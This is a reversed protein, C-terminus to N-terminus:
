KFDNYAAEIVNLTKAVEGNDCFDPNSVAFGGDAPAASAKFRLNAYLGDATKNASIDAVNGVLKVTSGSAAVEMEEFIGADYGVYECGSPISVELYGAAVNEDTYLRVPVNVISSYGDEVRACRTIGDVETGDKTIWYPTIYFADGFRGSGINTIKLTFFYQSDVNFVSPDVNKYELGDTTSVIKKFVTETGYKYSWDDGMSVKFGVKSYNAGDVTSVIRLDSKGASADKVTSTIQCAASLVQAPVFKAYAKGTAETYVTECEQDSYWGAFLYKEYGTETPKPATRNGDQVYDAVEKQEVHCTTAAQVKNADVSMVCVGSLVIAMTLIGVFSKKLFSHVLNNKM